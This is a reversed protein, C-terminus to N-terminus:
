TSVLGFLSFLLFIVRRCWNDMSYGRLPSIFTKLSFSVFCGTAGVVEYM